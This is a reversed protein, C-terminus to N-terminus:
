QLASEKRLRVADLRHLLFEADLITLVRANPADDLTVFHSVAPHDSADAPSEVGRDPTVVAELRDIAFAVVLDDHKVVLATNVAKQGQPEGIGLIEELDLLAIPAGRLGFLGLVFSPSRPVPIASEVKVVESVLAVDIAFLREGMTFACLGRNTKVLEISM